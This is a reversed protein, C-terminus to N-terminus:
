GGPGSGRPRRRAGGASPVAAQRRVAAASEAATRRAQPQHGRGGRRPPGEAADGAAPQLLLGAGRAPRGGPGAGQESQDQVASRSPPTHEDRGVEGEDAWSAFGRVDVIRGRAKATRTGAITGQGPVTRFPREAGGGPRRAAPWPAPDHPDGRGHEGREPSGPRFAAQGDAEDVVVGGAEGRRTVRGGTALLARSGRLLPTVADRVQRRLRLAQGRHEGFWVALVQAADRNGQAVAQVTEEAAAADM